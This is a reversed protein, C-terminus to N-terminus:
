PRGLKTKTEFAKFRQYEEWIWEPGVYDTAQEKPYWEIVEEFCRAKIYDVSFSWVMNIDYEAYQIDKTDPQLRCKIYDYLECYSKFSPPLENKLLQKM